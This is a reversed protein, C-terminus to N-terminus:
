KNTERSIITYVDGQFIIGKNNNIPGAFIVVHRLDFQFSTRRPYISLIIAKSLNLDQSFYKECYLRQLNKLHKILM